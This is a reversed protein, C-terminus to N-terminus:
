RLVRKTYLCLVSLRTNGEYVIFNDTKGTIDKSVLIADRQGGDKFIKKRLSIADHFNSLRKSYKNLLSRM